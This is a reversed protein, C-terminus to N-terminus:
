KKSRYYYPELITDKTVRYKKYTPRRDNDKPGLEIIRNKINGLPYSPRDSIRDWYVFQGNLNVWVYYNVPSSHFGLDGIAALDPVGDLNFDRVEFWYGVSDFPFVKAAFQANSMTVFSEGEINGILRKPLRAKTKNDLKVELGVRLDQDTKGSDADPIFGIRLKVLGSIVIKGVNFRLQQTTTDGEAYSKNLSIPKQGWSWSSICFFFVLVLLVKMPIIIAGRFLANDPGYM